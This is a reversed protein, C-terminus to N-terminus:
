RFKIRTIVPKGLKHDVTGLYAKVTGDRTTAWLDPRGDLNIDGGSVAPFAHSDFRRRTVTYRTGTPGGAPVGNATNGVWLDLRGTHNDRSYLAPNGGSVTAAITRGSWGSSILQPSNYVGSLHLPTYLYLNDGVIAYLDPFPVGTTSPVASAVIQDVIQQGADDDIRPLRVISYLNTDFLYEDSGGLYVYVNRDTNSTPVRVLFDQVGDNNFDATSIAAGIWDSVPRTPNTGFNLGAAGLQIGTTAVHGKRDTGPFLWLGPHNAPGVELLDPIGDGTVDGYPDPAPLPATSFFYSTEDGRRGAADIAYVHLVNAGIKHPVVVVDTPAGGVAAAIRAGGPFPGLHDPPTTSLYTLSYVYSAPVDSGAPPTFTFTGPTRAPPGTVDSPYTTSTVIPPAPIPDGAAAVPGAAAPSAPLLGAATLMSIALMLRRTRGIV